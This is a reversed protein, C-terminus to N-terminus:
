APLRVETGVDLGELIAVWGDDVIGLEVDFHEDVAFGSYGLARLESEIAQVDPGDDIGPRLERFLPTASLLAVIPEDDDRYLM